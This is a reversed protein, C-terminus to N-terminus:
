EAAQPAGGRATGSKEAQQEAVWLSHHEKAWNEDVQGTGMADFAGEMGISGIYIHALIIGVLIVGILGHVIAATQMGGIDTESFPFLLLYGTVSLAIGGLVVSWFILKQGGNFKKAPPHGKGVIGGGAKLWAWDVKGPINDKVWIVLMLVIGAAFPVSLYNHAYKGLQTITAFAEPGILPLLISKGFSINLGTLGLIIFSAATLWHVFREFGNFRTIKRGSAGGAIRIRGRVLFFVALLVVMGVVAVWGVLPLTERQFDRWEIGEPQILVGSKEDPISVRGEVKQLEMLLQQEATPTQQAAAPAALACALILALAGLRGLLRSMSAIITMTWGKTRGDLFPRRPLPRRPGRGGDPM